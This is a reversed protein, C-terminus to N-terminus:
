TCYAVILADKPVDKAWTEIRDNPMHVAGRAVVDGVAGRTDLVLLKDGADRHRQVEAPTIRRAVGPDFVRATDEALLSGGLAWAVTAAVAVRVIRSMM